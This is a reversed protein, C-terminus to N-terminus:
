AGLLIADLRRRYEAHADDMRRVALGHYPEHVEFGLYRRHNLLAMKCTTAAGCMPDLILDGTRSWSVILDRAMVEPMLAPHGYAYRDRTTKHGGAHYEWAVGRVGKEAVPKAFAAHRFHGDPTRAKFRRLLGAHKNDKDRILHVSRPRGKSLVFAFEVIGYRNGGAFRGGSRTMILIDHLRFGIEQFYLAQRFSAGSYGSDIEDAVVWVVVGGPMTIRYLEEAVAGFTDSDFAHGRYRRLDDYPPSTLTMPICADPLMKMGEVCNRHLLKDILNPSIQNM